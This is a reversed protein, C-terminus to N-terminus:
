VNTRWFGRRLTFRYKARQTNIFLGFWPFGWMRYADIYFRGLRVGTCGLNNWPLYIKFKM